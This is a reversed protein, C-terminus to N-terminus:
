PSLTPEVIISKDPSSGSIILSPFPLKSIKYCLANVLLYQLAIIKKRAHRNKTRYYLISNRIEM